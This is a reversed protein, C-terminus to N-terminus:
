ESVFGAKSLAQKILAIEGDNAPLYPRRPFGGNHGRLRMAAKLWAVFRGQEELFVLLPRVQRYYQLAEEYNHSTTLRYLTIMVEPLVNATGSFMGRSGMRLSELVISNGGSLVTIQNQTAQLMRQVHSIDATGEKIYRITPLESLRAVLEPSLSARTKSRWNYLIMPLPTAGAVDHYYHFIEEESFEYGSYHPPFVLLADLGCAQAAKATHIAERTSRGGVGGVVPIRGQTHEVALKYVSMLEEFSLAEFEGTSGGVALAHIGQELLYDIHETLLHPELAGTHSFPTILAAIVGKLEKM